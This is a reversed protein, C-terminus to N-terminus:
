KETIYLEQLDEITADFWQPLGRLSPPADDIDGNFWTEFPKKVQLVLVTKKNFISGIQQSRYRTEM